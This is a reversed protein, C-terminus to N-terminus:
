LLHNKCAQQDRALYATSSLLSLRDVLWDIRDLLRILHQPSEQRLFSPWHLVWNRLEIIHLVDRLWTLSLPQSTRMEVQLHYTSTMAEYPVTSGAHFARQFFFSLDEPGHGIRVEQWDAWILDGHEDRLVNGSHCDGHCMTLPFSALVNELFPILALLHIVRQFRDRPILSVVPPDQQIAQWQIEAQQMQLDSTNEDSKRLWSSQALQKTNRWFAAHFQGLQKAVAVYHEEQWQEAPPAAQYATLLLAIGKPDHVQAVMHPVRLPLSSAMQQYFLYERQARQLVSLDSQAHTIKCILDGQVMQLRYTVAGSIGGQLTQYGRLQEPSSHMKSLFYEIEQRPEWKQQTM